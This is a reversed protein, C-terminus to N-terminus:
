SRAKEKKRWSEQLVRNFPITRFTVEPTLLGALIFSPEQSEWAWTNGTGRVAREAVTFQILTEISLDASEQSSWLCIFSCTLGGKQREGM